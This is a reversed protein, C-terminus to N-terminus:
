QWGSFSSPPIFFPDYLAHVKCISGFFVVKAFCFLITSAGQPEIVGGELIFSSRLVFPNIATIIPPFIVFRLQYSARPRSGPLLRPTPPGVVLDKKSVVPLPKLVEIIKILNPKKILTELYVSRFFVEIDGGSFNMIWSTPLPGNGLSTTVGRFNYTAGTRRANDPPCFSQLVPSFCDGGRHEM